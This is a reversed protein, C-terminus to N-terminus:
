GIRGGMNSLAALLRALRLTIWYRGAIYAAAHDTLRVSQGLGRSPSADRALM